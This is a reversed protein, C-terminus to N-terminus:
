GTLALAAAALAHLAQPIRWNLRDRPGVENSIVRVEGYAVAIERDRNAHIAVRGAVGEPVTLAIRRGVQRL